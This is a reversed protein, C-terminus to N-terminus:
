HTHTHTHTHIHTHTHAHTHTRARVSTSTHTGNQAGTATWTHTSYYVTSAVKPTVLGALHLPQDGLIFPESLWSLHDGAAQHVCHVSPFDGLFQPALKYFKLRFHLDCMFLWVRQEMIRHWYGKQLVTFVCAHLSCFCFYLPFFVNSNFLFSNLCSIIQVFSLYGGEHWAQFLVAWSMFPM